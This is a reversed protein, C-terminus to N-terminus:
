DSRTVSIKKIESYQGLQVRYFYFGAPLTSFDMKLTFTGKSQRSNVLTKVPRGMANFLTLNVMAPKELQYSIIGTTSVPNPYASLMGHSAPIEVPKMGVIGGNNTKLITGYSGTAWGTNANVFDITFLYNSTLNAQQEWTIGGNQTHFIHGYSGSIWGNLSDPFTVSYLWQGGPLEQYEWSEGGDSTRLVVSTYGGTWVHGVAWGHHPDSFTVDHLEATTGGPKIAWTVGGDTSKMIKGAEGVIWGTNQDIFFLAYPTVPGMPVKEWSAGGNITRLVTDTGAAWGHSIDTFCIDRLFLSHGPDLFQLNWTHGGDATNEIQNIGSAWGHLPDTFVFADSFVNTTDIGSWTDGGDSTFLIINGNELLWGTHEDVFCADRFQGTNTGSSLEFWTVGADTSKVLHGNYGGGYATNPGPFSGSIFGNTSNVIQWSNGADVTRLTVAGTILGTDPSAFSVKVLRGATGSVKESWTLGGNQTFLIIGSDGCITGQLPTSFCIGNYSKTDPAPVATWTSGGDQTKLITGHTGVIWGALNDQFFVSGLDQNQANPIYKNWWTSGGDTSYKVEGSGGVAWGNGANMFWIDRLPTNNAANLVIDWTNGGDTTKLILEWSNPYSGVIWGNMPDIFFVTNLNALINSCQTTWTNGGNVTHIITGNSGCAWGENENIFCTSLLTNGQPKPNQWFWQSRATFAVFFLLVIMPIQKKKM